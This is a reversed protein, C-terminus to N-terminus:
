QASKSERDEQDRNKAKEHLAVRKGIAPLEVVFFSRIEEYNQDIFTEIIERHQADTLGWQNDEPKWPESFRDTAWGRDGRPVNLWILYCEILFDPSYGILEFALSMFQGVDSFDRQTLRRGREILSGGAGDNDGFVDNLGGVNGGSAKIAQSFTKAVLSFFRSRAMWPLKDQYYVSYHKETGGHEPTKGIMWQKPKTWPDLKDLEARASEIEEERTKEVEATRQATLEANQQEVKSGAEVASEKEEVENNGPDVKRDEESPAGKEISKSKRKPADTATAM